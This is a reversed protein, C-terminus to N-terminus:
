YRVVLGGDDDVDAAPIHLVDRKGRRERVHTAPQIHEPPPEFLPPRGVLIPPVLSRLHLSCPHSSSPRLHRVNLVCASRFFAFHM